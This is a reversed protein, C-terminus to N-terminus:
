VNKPLETRLDALHEDMSVKGVSWNENEYIIETVSANSVWPVENLKGLEMGQATCQAVRVPTAHTAIVVTKGENKEAISQLAGVVREKLEKVSEGGTCVANGIDTLWMDYDKKFDEALRDFPHGEWEGAFIERLGKDKVIEMGLEKATAEATQYARLLDSAYIADVAYHSCIFDATLKAQEQGKETLEFDGHGAYLGLENAKSEGHRILLLKTM